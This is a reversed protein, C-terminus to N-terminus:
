TAARLRFLKGDDSAFYLEGDEDEGFVIIPVPSRMQETMRWEGTPGRELAWISGSWYDGFVYKGLLGPIASGRYVYGGTVAAGLSHDYGAVPLALGETNCADAQVCHRGEMLDWGYNQGGSLPAPEANIEQFRDQGIDAIWLDGTERDFSFRRPDRLGYAYIEPCATPHSIFPNDPLLGYGWDLNVDIRLLKGRLSGLDQAAATPGEPPVIDGTSIYLLGNPGFALTGGDSGYLHYLPQREVTLLVQVAEPGARNPDDASARYEAVVMQGDRDVYNVFFRGNSAYDPHFAVSLLGRGDTRSGFLSRIDLFPEDLVRGNQFIRITGPQEVVFLRHSGDGAHGVFVTHQFDM